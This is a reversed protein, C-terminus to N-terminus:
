FRSCGRRGTRIATHWVSEVNHKTYNAAETQQHDDQKPNDAYM